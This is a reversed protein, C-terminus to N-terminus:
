NQVATLIGNEFYLYSHLGQYVWQEHVGAATTTRNVYMPKGWSSALVQEKSMGLAVGEKKRRAKDAASKAKAQAAAAKTTKADKAQTALLAERHLAIAEADKWMARCENLFLFAGDPDGAKLKARAQAKTAEVNIQCKAELPGPDQFPPAARLTSASFILFLAAYCTRTRM